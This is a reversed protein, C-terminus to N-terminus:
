RNQCVHKGGGFKGGGAGGENFSKSAVIEVRFQAEAICV